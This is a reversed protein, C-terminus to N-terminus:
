IKNTPLDQCVSVAIFQALKDGVLQNPAGMSAPDRKPYYRLTRGRWDVAIKWVAEYEAPQDKLAIFFEQLDMGACFVDGAGTIVIVKAADDSRLEELAATM